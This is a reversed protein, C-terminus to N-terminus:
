RTRIEMRACCLGRGKGQSKHFCLIFPTQPQEHPGCWDQKLNVCRGHHSGIPLDVFEGSGAGRSTWKQSASRLSSNFVELAHLDVTVYWVCLERHVWGRELGARRDLQQWSPEPIWKSSKQPSSNTGLVQVTVWPGHLKLEQPVSARKQSGCASHECACVGLIFM